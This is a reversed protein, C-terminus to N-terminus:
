LVESTWSARWLKIAVTRLRLPLAPNRSLWSWLGRLWHQGPMAKLARAARAGPLASLEPHRDLLRRFNAAGTKFKALLEDTAHLGGHRAPNDIHVLRFQDAATVAWDVDEWGWGSFGEDFPCARMVTARVLVNSSCFATAGIANRAAADHHDSTRSLAAHLVQEPRDADATIYGGFLADARGDGLAQRYRDLFADDSPIMDADLYLLWDAQARRALLNRGAARGRNRVSTLVRVPLDLRDIHTCIAQNLAPDPEGDDYLVIELDDARMALRDLANILPRPDDNYFPILISLEPNRDLRGAANAHERMPIETMANM